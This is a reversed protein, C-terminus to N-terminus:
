RKNYPKGKKRGITKNDDFLWFVDNTAKHFMYNKGTSKVHRLTDRLGIYDDSDYSPAYGEVPHQWYVGKKGKREEWELMDPDWNVVLSPGTPKPRTPALAEGSDEGIKTARPETDDEQVLVLKYERGCKCKFSM